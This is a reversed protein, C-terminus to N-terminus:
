GGRGGTGLRRPLRHTPLGLPEYRPDLVNTL